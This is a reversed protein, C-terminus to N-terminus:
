NEPLNLRRLLSQFRPEPRLADFASDWNLSHLHVDREQYARELWELAQETQGLGAHVLAIFYPPVYRKRSEAKLEELLKEAERRRGIRGYFHGLRAISMPRRELSVAKELEAIAEKQMGKGWYAIGLQWHAANYTPNSQLVKRYQEIAQDFQQVVLYHAGLHVNMAPSLPDVEVARQSEVLSEDFRGLALLLHSYLHHAEAYSSNLALARKFEEEAGAWDWENLFRIQALVAHAEGLTDDLALAKTVLERAIPMAKKPPLGVEHYVYTEALGVYMLANNPALEIARQFYERALQTGKRTWQEFYYRGKLYAEHAAPDVPRAEALRTAEEPTLAVEIHRAITTVIENQLTLVDRLDREYRDAWLHEETRANILQATIRVRDGALVVSGTIIADVNLEEAIERLPKDSGQYRMVSSRAIVRRLGSLKALDTILAETMGDAFYDQEPDGSLNALPLVAISEIKVPGAGFLRERLGGLNVVVAAVVLLVVAASMALLQRRRLAYRLGAWPLAAGTAIAELAARVEAARQYREGPEKALCREVVARVEVPVKSPLPGPKERLIASSLEYGTNGRFPRQGALMEHLMVGLAWVDSRADAPEGRLQEPAMYALTGMVAGEATLSAQSRTVEELQEDRIQKALGFDLVKARGEPTIVVNASKLDRHVIGREHAHALGDAIQQGYRLVREVPLTQEAVLQSLPRGEVYEMAIYAQGDAEGVEHITCIHPHNLKSATRAERLLRARATPDAFSSAPLVKLAVDRDLREDHARYVEGMGGAGIKEIIRYHSLKTGPNLM